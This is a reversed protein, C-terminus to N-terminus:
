SSAIVRTANLTANGITLWDVETTCEFRNGSQKLLDLRNVLITIKGYKMSTAAVIRAYQWTCYRDNFGHSSHSNEVIIQQIFSCM